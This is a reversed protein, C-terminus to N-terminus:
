AHQGLELHFLIGGGGDDQGRRVAVEQRHAGLNRVDFAAVMGHHSVLAQREHLVQRRAVAQADFAAAHRAHDVEVVRM